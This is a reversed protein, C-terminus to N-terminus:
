GRWHGQHSIVKGTGLERKKNSFIWSYVADSTLGAANIDRLQRCMEARKGAERVGGHAGATLCWIKSIETDGADLGTGAKCKFRPLHEYLIRFVCVM